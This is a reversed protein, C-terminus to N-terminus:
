AGMSRFTPREVIKSASHVHLYWIVCLQETGKDETGKYGPLVVDVCHKAWWCGSLQRKGGCRTPISTDTCRHKGCLKM